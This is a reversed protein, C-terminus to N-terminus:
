LSYMISTPVLQVYQTLKSPKREVVKLKGKSKNVLRAIEAPTFNNNRKLIGFSIEGRESDTLLQILKELRAARSKAEVDCTLLQHQQMFWEMVALANTMTEAEFPRGLSYYGGDAVHLILAIKYTNELWRSAISSNVSEGAKVKALLPNLSDAVLTLDAESTKIFAPEDGQNERVEDLIETILYDWEQRTTPNFARRTPDILNIEAKSDVMLTRAFFGSELAEITSFLKRGISPQTMLAMSLCSQDARVSGGESRRDLSMPECSYGSLYVSEDTDGGSRYRGFIVALPDKAEESVLAFAGQPKVGIMAVLRESTTNRTMISGDDDAVKQIKKTECNLDVLETKQEPTAKGDSSKILKNIAGKREKLLHLDTENGAAVEETFRKIREREWEHIPKFLAKHTEGKGSGSEGLIISFTNGHLHRGNGSGIVVGAGMSVSVAALATPAALALPVAYARCTENVMERMVEPLAHIPFPKLELDQNTIIM